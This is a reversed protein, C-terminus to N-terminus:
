LVFIISLFQCILGAMTFLHWIGHTYKGKMNFVVAGITYSVGGGALLWFSLGFGIANVLPVVAVIALWGMTLYCIMGFTKFKQRNTATLITGIICATWNVAL